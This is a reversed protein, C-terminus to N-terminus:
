RSNLRRVQSCQEESAWGWESNWSAGPRADVQTLTQLCDKKLEEDPNKGPEPGCDRYWYHTTPYNKQLHECITEASAVSYSGTAMVIFLCLKIFFKM